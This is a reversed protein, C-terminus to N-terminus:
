SFEKRLYDDHEAFVRYDGPPVNKIAFHGRGDTTAVVSSMLPGYVRAVLVRADAVPAKTSADTIVGSVSGAPQSPAPSSAPASQAAMGISAVVLLMVKM